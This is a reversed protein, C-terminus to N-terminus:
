GQRVLSLKSFDLKLERFVFYILPVCCLIYSLVKVITSFLLEINSASPMMDDIVMGVFWLLVVMYIFPLWLRLFYRVWDGFRKTYHSLAYGIVICSYFLYTILTGGVAIGEIGYGLQLFLYDIIINLLLAVGGFLAYQKLKGITVLFYDTLGLIGFFFIGVIVIRAAAIGPIYAPLLVSIVLPLSLYLSGILVPLSASLIVPPTLVLSRLAEVNKGSSGYQHTIRPYLVQSAMAPILSVVSTLLLALGFYGLQKEGLFTIVMLRDITALLSLVFGSMLIPLGVRMASWVDSLNYKPVALWPNRRLAYLVIVAQALIAAILRGVLGGFVVFFIALGSSVVAFLVQQQGLERFNNHSRLVIRHYTYVQQLILVVAMAQLGLAMKLSHTPLFSFAIVFLATVFASFITTRRAAGELTAAKEMNGQGRHFPLDRGMASLAGFELYAGYVLVLSVANWVGFDSPGLLRAVWFGAILGLAQAVIGSASYSLIDRIIQFKTNL